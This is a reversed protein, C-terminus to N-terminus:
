SGGGARVLGWLNLAIFAVISVLSLVFYGVWLGEERTLGRRDAARRWLEHRVFHWSDYKLTPRGLLDVLIHYGDMELFCVPYLSVLLAQWQLIGSAVVFSQLLGHEMYTAAWLALSGLYLHVLPGALATVVRARRSAMFIDTVDVFFTPLLGHLVTFGYERVRRGYHVCALGHLIQHVALTAFLVLKVVVLSLLPYHALPAAILAAEPWFRVAAVVGLGLLVLGVLLSLPTFLLRGGWRSLHEFADQVSRSSITLHELTRLTAEVARAAPNRRYRALVERLRSAPRLTLLDVRRLKAILTPILEFDFAGYRLVYATALDQVSTRGDMREWLFREPETLLLFRDTTLNKLVFRSGGDGRSSLQALEHQTAPVRQPKHHLYALSSAVTRIEFTGEDERRVLLELKSQRTM